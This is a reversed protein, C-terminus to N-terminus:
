SHLKAHARQISDRSKMNHYWSNINPYNDFPLQAMEANEMYAFAFHDAITIQDGLLYLGDKLQKEIAPMQQEIYGLAEKEAEKNPEGLGFKQKVVKEFAYNSVWRGLHITFFDMWQDVKCRNIHDNIPYLPTNQTSAIYRCIAGSEFLNNGDHTLTPVRGLPHRQLHEPTKNEGAKFDLQQYEYDVGLEEAVYITKTTNSSASLGYIKFM